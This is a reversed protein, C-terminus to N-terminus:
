MSTAVHPLISSFVDEAVPHPRKNLDADFFLFHAPAHGCSASSHHVFYVGPHWGPPASIAYTSGLAHAYALLQELEIPAAGGPLFPIPLRCVLNFTSRYDARASLGLLFFNDARWGCVMLLRKQPLWNSLPKVSPTTRRSVRWVHWTLEIVRRSMFKCM